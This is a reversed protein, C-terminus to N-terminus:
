KTSEADHSYLYLKDGALTAEIWKEFDDPKMTDWNPTQGVQARGLRRGVKVLANANDLREADYAALVEGWETAEKALKELTLADQLAKTAGAATHPRLVAAADGVLLVRDAAYSVALEDYIPQITLEDLLSLGVLHEVDPPMCRLYEEFFTYLEATVHGPPVSSPETFDLSDPQPTYIGWNVMRHGVETKGDFSPITYLIAHGGDFVVTLWGGVEDIRDLAARNSVRSENYSGRWLIYGAYDPITGWSMGERVKSRYRRGDSPLDSRPHTGRTLLQDHDLKRSDGLNSCVVPPVSMWNVTERANDLVGRRLFVRRPLHEAAVPRWLLSV